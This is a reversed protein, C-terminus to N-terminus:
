LERRGQEPVALSASSDGDQAIRLVPHEAHTTGVVQDKTNKRRWVASLGYISALVPIAIKECEM